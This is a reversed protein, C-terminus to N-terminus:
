SFDIESIAQRYFSFQCLRKVLRKCGGSLLMNRLIRSRRGAAASAVFLPDLFRLVPIRRLFQRRQWRLRASWSLSVHIPPHIALSQQAQLLHLALTTYQAQSRFRHEIFSWDLSAAFRQQLVSLDVLARLPPWIRERYPHVLQSHAILHTVLHDPSPLRLQVGRWEILSSAAVIESAPLLKNCVGLGISHHLEVPLSGARYVTEHHRFGDILDDEDRQYGIRELAKVATRVHAQPVLIDIDALYRDAPDDYAGALLYALGKLVVPQLGDTNLAESVERLQSLIQANRERNLEAVVVLCNLVEPSVHSPLQTKEALRHHLAPLVAEKSARAILSEWDFDPNHLLSLAETPDASFVLFLAEDSM